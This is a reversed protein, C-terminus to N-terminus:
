MDMCCMANLVKKKKKTRKPLMRKDLDNQSTCNLELHNELHKPFGMHAGGRRESTKGLKTLISKDLPLFYRLMSEASLPGAM